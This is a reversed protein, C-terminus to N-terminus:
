KMVLKLFHFFLWSGACIACVMISLMILIIAIPSGQYDSLIIKDSESLHKTTM